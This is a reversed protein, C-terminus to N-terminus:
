KKTVKFSLLGMIQAKEHRFKSCIYAWTGFTPYLQLPNDVAMQHRCTRPFTLQYQLTNARASWFTVHRNCSFM